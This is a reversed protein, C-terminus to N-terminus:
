SVWNVQFSSTNLNGPEIEVTARRGHVKAQLVEQLGNYNGIGAGNILANAFSVTPFMPVKTSSYNIADSVSGLVAFDATGGPGTLTQTFGTTDDTFTASTASLAVSISVTVLDNPSV